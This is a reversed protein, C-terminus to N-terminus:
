DVAIKTLDSIARAVAEGDGSQLARIFADGAEKRAIKGYDDAEQSSSVSSQELIRKALEAKSAM